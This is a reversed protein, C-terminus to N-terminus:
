VDSESNHFIQNTVIAQSSSMIFAIDGASIANVLDDHRAALRYNM